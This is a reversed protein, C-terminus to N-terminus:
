QGVFARKIQSLDTLTLTTTYNMDAAKQQTENLLELEVLHLKVKSIDTLTISGSGTIDGRVILTYNKNDNITLITNTTIIDEDKMEINNRVIKDKETLQLETKIDKVKTNPLIKYIINEEIAYKDSTITKEVETTFAKICINTNSIGTTEGALDALDIWNNMNLSYYSEESNSTATAWYGSKQNEIGISAKQNGIYKVAVVFKEGTLKVPQKLKITTYGQRIKSDQIEVKKIKSLDGDEGNIYVEVNQEALSAISIENIQEVIKKDKSFVNAGYLVKESGVAFSNSIGLPDHQYIKDYEIDEANIIGIIGQEIYADEYSIYYCGTKFNGETGYSNLVLYAGPNSPRHGENFNTVPYEDNWGIITIQHNLTLDADDCYFSPLESEFNYYENYAPGSLTMSVVAGYNMIHQKINNRNTEIENQTYTVTQAENTYKINGQEDKIKLIEPFIVYDTVRKQTTKGELASLAIPQEIESFPMDKELIPGRGSTFYGMAITANGGSTVERNHALPNIGDSFTKATSYVIHRESFNFEEKKTLLLNTELVTNSAFAWCNQTSGQDKIQLAIQTRLDFKTGALLQKDSLASLNIIKRTKEIKATNTLEIDTKAMSIPTFVTSLGIIMCLCIKYYHSKNM